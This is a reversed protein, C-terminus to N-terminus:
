MIRNSRIVLSSSAVKLNSIQREVLQTIGANPLLHNVISSELYLHMLYIQCRKYPYTSDFWSRLRILAGYDVM